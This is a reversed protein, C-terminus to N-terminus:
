NSRNDDVKFAVQVAAKYEAIDGNDGVNCTLNIVDVGSINRITRGAEKVAQKVADDWSTPSDGVLELVKVVAM